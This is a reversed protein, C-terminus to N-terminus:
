VGGKLFEKEYMYIVSNVNDNDIIINKFKELDEKIGRAELCHVV